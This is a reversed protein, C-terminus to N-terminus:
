FGPPVANRHEENKMGYAPGACRAVFRGDQLKHALDEVPAPVQTQQKKMFLVYAVAISAGGVLYLLSKM